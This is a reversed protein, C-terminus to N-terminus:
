KALFATITVLAARSGAATLHLKNQTLPRLQLLLPTQRVQLCLRAAKFATTTGVAERNDLATEAKSQAPNSHHSNNQQKIFHGKPIISHSPLYNCYIVQVLM